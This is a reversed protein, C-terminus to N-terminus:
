CWCVNLRVRVVVVVFFLCFFLCVMCCCAICRLCACVCSFVCLCLVYVRVGNLMVCYIAFEFCWRRLCMVSLCVCVCLVFLVSLCM